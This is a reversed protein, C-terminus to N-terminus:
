PKPFSLVLRGSTVWSALAQREEESTLAVNVVGTSEGSSGPNTADSTGRLGAPMPGLELCRVARDGRQLAPTEALLSRCLNGLDASSPRLFSRPLSLAGDPGEQQLALTVRASEPAAFQARPPVDPGCSVLAMLMATAWAGAGVCHHMCTSSELGM